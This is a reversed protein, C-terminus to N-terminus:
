LGKSMMSKVVYLRYAELAANATGLADRTTELHARVIRYTKPDHVGPFRSDCLTSIRDCIVDVNVDPELISKTQLIGLDGMENRSSSNPVASNVAELSAKATKLALEIPLAEPSTSKEGLSRLYALLMDIAQNSRQFVNDWSTEGQRLLRRIWYKTSVMRSRNRIKPMTVAVSVVEM